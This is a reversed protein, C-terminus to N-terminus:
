LNTTTSNTTTSNTTTAKAVSDIFNYYDLLNITTSNITSNITAKAFIINTTTAKAVSDIFLNIPSNRACNYYYLEYTTTSNITTLNTTTAKAVSDMLKCSVAM